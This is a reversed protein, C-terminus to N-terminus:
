RSAWGRPLRFPPQLVLASRPTGSVRFSPQPPTLDTVSWKMPDFAGAILPLRYGDLGIAHVCAVDVAVVDDSMLGM